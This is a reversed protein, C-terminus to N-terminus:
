DEYGCIKREHKGKADELTGKRKEGKCRKLGQCNYDFHYAYSNKTMCIYVYTVESKAPATPRDYNFGSLAVLVIGILVFKPFQSRM